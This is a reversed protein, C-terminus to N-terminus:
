PQPIRLVQGIRLTSDPGLNNLDAIRNAFDEYDAGPDALERAISWVADGAQVTYYRYDSNTSANGAALTLTIGVGIDDPVFGASWEATQQQTQGNVTFRVTAGAEAAGGCEGWNITISWGGDTGARATGCEAEGILAIVLDGSDLGGGYYHAPLPEARVRPRTPEPTPEPAAAGHSHDAAAHSHDAAAYRADARREFEAGCEEFRRRFGEGTEWCRWYLDGPSGTLTIGVSVDDPVSGASWEATQQQTQGNVTFRVTAGAEAAGGCEGANVRMQWAGSADATDTGCEAEGIWATVEAGQFLGGGYYNAPLPDQADGPAAVATLAVALAALALLTNIANWRM